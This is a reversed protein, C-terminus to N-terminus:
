RNPLSSTEPLYTWPWTCGGGDGIVVDASGCTSDAEVQCLFEMGPSVVPTRGGSKKM